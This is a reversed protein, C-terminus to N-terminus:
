NVMNIEDTNLLFYGINNARDGSVKTFAKNADAIWRLADERNKFPRPVIKFEGTSKFKELILYVTEYRYGHVDGKSDDTTFIDTKLADKM